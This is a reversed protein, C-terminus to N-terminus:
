YMTFHIRAEFDMFIKDDGQCGEVKKRLDEKNWFTTTKIDTVIKDLEVILNEERILTLDTM